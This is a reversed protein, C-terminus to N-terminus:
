NDQKVENWVVSYAQRSKNYGLQGNLYAALQEQSTRHKAPLRANSEQVEKFVAKIIQKDAESFKRCDRKHKRRCTPLSNADGFVMSHLIDIGNAVYDYLQRFM